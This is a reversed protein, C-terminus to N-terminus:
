RGQASRAASERSLGTEQARLIAGMWQRAELPRGEQETLPMLMVVALVPASTGHLGNWAAIMRTRVGDGVARGDLWAGVGAMGPRGLMTRAQWRASPTVVDLPLAEDDGEGLARRRAAALVAWNARPSFVELSATARWAGCHLEAGVAECGSPAILTAPLTLTPAVVANLTAAALPGLAGMGAVLSAALFPRWAATPLAMADPRDPAGESSARADQRFPLGALVLLLIVASFFVWGYVVHDVAAAEASGLHHGLLVIGLARLGNALIPVLAALAMVLLRRWPSRFMELAYLAGFALAAILFRLGACAEAVLFVGAPIEIVLGDVHHTIEMARLGVVIMWLTVDQLWPTAFEGFPVLFFLYVLPAAMARCIRWGLVALALLWVFGLVAFQRGEMIGLREMVLWALAGGLGLLAVAPMPRPSLGVLRARRTWGLWLALPLVLWCHSYASSSDWTNVAAAVEAHFSAGLIALGLALGVLSSTWARTAGVHRTGALTTGALTTGAPRTGVPRTSALTTGAPAINTSM